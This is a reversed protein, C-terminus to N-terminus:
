YYEGDPALGVPVFVLFSLIKFLDPDIEELDNVLLDIPLAFSVDDDADDDAGWDSEVPPKDDPQRNLENERNLRNIKLYYTRVVHLVRPHAVPGMPWRAEFDNLSKSNGMKDPTRGANRKWWELVPPMIKRLDAVYEAQLKEYREDM